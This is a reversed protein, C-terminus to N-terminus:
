LVIIRLREPGIPGEVPASDERFVELEIAYGDVVHLLVHITVGDRDEAEAEVPIRRTVAAAPAGGVSLELSGDGDIPRATAQAIQVALAENGPFPQALLAALLERESPHLPRFEAGPDFSSM